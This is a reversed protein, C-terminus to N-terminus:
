CLLKPGSVSRSFLPRAMEAATATPMHRTTAATAAAATTLRLKVFADGECDAGAAECVGDHMPMHAVVAWLWRRRADTDADPLM